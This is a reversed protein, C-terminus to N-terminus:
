APAFQATMREMMQEPTLDELHTAISWRHGFPDVLQGYRDGWFMNALPMAVTAGAEVARNFTADADAVMMHLTVPTGGLAAPSVSGCSPFEEALYLVSDGIKLEGHMIAGTEPCVMRHKEIAGFARTYFDIAETARKVVLYPTITEHGELVPNVADGM